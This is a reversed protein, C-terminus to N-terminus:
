LLYEIIRKKPDFNEIENLGLGQIAAEIEGKHLSAFHRGAKTFESLPALGILETGTVTTGLKKAESEAALYVELLGNQELNYLNCSVQVKDFDKIYWGISKVGKLLGAGSNKTGSERIVGAIKKAIFVDKTELNLNFAVMLRRAGITTIGFKELNELDGMDVPEEKVKSAISEYEGKRIYALSQKEMSLANAAYYYTSIGLEGHLRHALRVGIDITHNISIGSLPIFPCVDVAGLRPHTGKHKRMDILELSKAYLAFAAEAISDPNGVFTFVTRNAAYGSDIHLLKVDQVSQIAEALANIIEPNQGESVNPVCEILAM